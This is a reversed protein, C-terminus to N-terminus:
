GRCCRRRRRAFLVLALLKNAQGDPLRRVAATTSTSRRLVAAVAAAAACSPTGAASSAQTRRVVRSWDVVSGIRPRPLSHLAPQACSLGFLRGDLLADGPGPGTRRNTTSSCCCACREYAVICSVRLLADACAGRALYQQHVDEAAHFRAAPKLLPPLRAAGAEAARQELFAAAADRQAATHWFVGPRYQPGRDRGQGRADFPDELAEWFVSLLADYSVLAADYTVQVAEVHGSRGGCVARYTPAATTGQTPADAVLLLSCFRLAACRL